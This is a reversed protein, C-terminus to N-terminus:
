LNAILESNITNTNGGVARAITGASPAQGGFSAGYKTWIDNNYGYATSMHRAAVIVALDQNQLGYDNRNALM